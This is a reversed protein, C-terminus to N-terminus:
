LVTLFSYPCSPSRVQQVFLEVHRRSILTLPAIPFPIPPPYSRLPVMWLTNAQTPQKPMHDAFDGRPIM